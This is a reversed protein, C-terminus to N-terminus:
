KSNPKLVVEFSSYSEDNTYFTIKMAKKRDPTAKDIRRVVDLMEAYTTEKPKDVGIQIDREGSTMRKLDEDTMGTFTNDVDGLRGDTLLVMLLPDSAAAKVPTTTPGNEAHSVIAGSFTLVLAVIGLSRM